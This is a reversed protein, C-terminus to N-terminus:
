ELRDFVVRTKFARGQADTGWTESTLSRGDASVEYKAEGIMRDGIKAEVRLTREDSRTALVTAGPVKAEAHAKGDLTLTCGEVCPQGDPGIGEARLEYSDQTRRLTMTAQQFRHNPDLDSRERNAQWRGEFVDETSQM